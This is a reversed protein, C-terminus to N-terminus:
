VSDLVALFFPYLSERAVLAMAGSHHLNLIMILVHHLPRPLPLSLNDQAQM